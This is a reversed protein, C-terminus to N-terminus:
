VGFIRNKGLEVIEQNEKIVQKLRKTTRNTDKKLFKKTGGLVDGNGNKNYLVDLYTNINKILFKVAKMVENPSTMAKFFRFEVTNFKRMSDFNIARYRSGSFTRDIDRPENINECYEGGRGDHALLRYKQINSSWFSTKRFQAYLYKWFRVSCLRFYDTQDKLSIHIHLGMTENIDGINDYLKYMRKALLRLNNTPKSKYEATVLNNSTNISGDDDLVFGPIEDYRYAGCEIETGIKDIHGLM